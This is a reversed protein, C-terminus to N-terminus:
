LGSPLGAPHEGFYFDGDHYCCVPGPPFCGSCPTPKEDARSELALLSGMAGIFLAVLTIVIKKKM